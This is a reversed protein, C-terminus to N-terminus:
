HTSDKRKLISQSVEEIKNQFLLKSQEFNAFLTAVYDLDKDLKFATMLEHGTELSIRLDLKTAIEKTEDLHWPSYFYNEFPDGIRAKKDANAMHEMSRQFIGWGKFEERSIAGNIKTRLMDRLLPLDNGRGENFIIFTFAVAMYAAKRTGMQGEGFYYQNQGSPCSPHLLPGPQALWSNLLTWNSDPCYKDISNNFVPNM